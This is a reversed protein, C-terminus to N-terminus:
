DGKEPRIRQELTEIHDELKKVKSGLEYLEKKSAIDLSDIAARVARTISVEIDSWQRTGTALIEDVLDQAEEKSLKGHEVLKRTAEEAKERTLVVAGFGSLLGKKIEELM